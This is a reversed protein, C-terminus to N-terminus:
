EGNYLTLKNRFRVFIDKKIPHKKSIFDFSYNQMKICDLIKTSIVFTDIMCNYKKTIDYININFCDINSFYSFVYMYRKNKITINKKTFDRIYM